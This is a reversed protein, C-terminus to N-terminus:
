GRTLGPGLGGSLTEAPPWCSLVVSLRRLWWVDTGVAAHEGGYLLYILYEGGHLVGEDGM